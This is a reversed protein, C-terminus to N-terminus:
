EKAIQVPVDEKLKESELKIFALNLNAFDNLDFNRAGKVYDNYQSEKIHLLECLQEKSLNNYKILMRIQKAYNLCHHLYLIEVENLTRLFATIKKNNISM